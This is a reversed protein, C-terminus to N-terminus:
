GTWFLFYIQNESPLICINKIQHHFLFCWMDYILHIRCLYCPGAKIHFLFYFGKLNFMASNKFHGLKSFKAMWNLALQCSYERHMLYINLRVRQVVCKRYPLKSFVHAGLTSLEQNKGMQKGWGDRGWHITRIENLGTWYAEPCGLPRRNEMLYHGNFGPANGEVDHQVASFVSAPLNEESSQQVKQIRLKRSSRRMVILELVRCVKIYM